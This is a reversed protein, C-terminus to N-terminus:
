EVEMHNVNYILLMITLAAAMMAIITMIVSADYDPLSYAVVNCSLSSLIIASILAAPISKKIFGIGTAVISISGTLTAMIFTTIIADQIFATTITEEVIPYILETIGFTSFVILNCAAMSLSIFLFVVALKVLLIKQRRIPYSFLLILRQGSYGDIIFRSYMVSALISFATMHVVGYLKVVNTYGSFILLDPDNPELKPAYAFLYIFGMMVISILIATKIYTRMKIQKLELKMLEVMM